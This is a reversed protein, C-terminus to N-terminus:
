PGPAGDDCQTALMENSIVMPTTGNTTTIATPLDANSSFMAFMVNSQVSARMTGGGRLVIRPAAGDPVLGYIALSGSPVPGCQALGYVGGRIAKDTPGCLTGTPGSLCVGDTGPTVIMAPGNAIAAAHAARSSVRGASRAYGPDIGYPRRARTRRDAKAAAGTRLVAFHELLRHDVPGSLQPKTPLGPGSPRSSDMVTHAVAAAGLAGLAVAAIVLTRTISFRM